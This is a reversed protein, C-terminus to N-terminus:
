KGGLCYRVIVLIISITFLSTLLSLINVGLLDFNFLGTFAKIPADVVSGILSLFSYDNASAVGEDFGAAKGQTYGSQFGTNFGTSKGDNFGLQYSIDDLNDTGALVGNDFATDYVTSCIEIYDDISVTSSSYSYDTSDSNFLTSRIFSFSSLNSITKVVFNFDQSSNFKQNAYFVFNQPLSFYIYYQGNTLFVYFQGYSMDYVSDGTFKRFFNDILFLNDFYDVGSQTTFNYDTFTLYDLSNLYKYDNQSITGLVGWDCNVINQPSTSESVVIDGNHVFTNQYISSSSGSAILGANYGDSYGASHGATYGQNYGIQTYYDEVNSNSDSSLRYYYTEGLSIMGNSGNYSDSYSYDIGNNTWTLTARNFYLNTSSYNDDLLNVGFVNSFDVFSYIQWNIYSYSGFYFSLTGNSYYFCPEEVYNNPDSFLDSYYVLYAPLSYWDGLDSLFVDLQFQIYLKATSSNFYDENYSLDFDGSVVIDDFEYDVTYSYLNIIDTDYFTSTDAFVNTQSTILFPLFACCFGVIFLCIYSFVSKLKSM